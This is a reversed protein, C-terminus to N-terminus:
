TFAYLKFVTNASFFDFGYEDSINDIHSRPIIAIHIDQERGSRAVDVLGFQKV